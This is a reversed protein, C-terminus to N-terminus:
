AGQEDPRDRTESERLDYAPPGPFPEPRSRWTLKLLTVGLLLIGIALLMVGYAGFGGHALGCGRGAATAAGAAVPCPSRPAAPAALAPAAILPM